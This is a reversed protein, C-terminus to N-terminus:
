RHVGTTSAATSQTNPVLRHQRQEEIQQELQARQSTLATLREQTRPPAQLLAPTSTGPGLGLATRMREMQLVEMSFSGSSQLGSPATAARRKLGGNRNDDSDSYVALVDDGDEVVAAASQNGNNRTSSAHDLYSPHSSSSSSASSSSSSSSSDWSSSSSSSSSSFQSSSSSSSLSESSPKSPSALSYKDALQANYISLAAGGDGLGALRERDMDVTAPDPYEVGNGEEGDAFTDAPNFDVDEKGLETVLDAVEEELVENDFAIRSGVKGEVIAGLIKMKEEILPWLIDDVSNESVIYDIQVPATQGIRHCRDEAQLLAAPTWFLETFIARSAATLTVAVGAATIGLLAARVTPDTQFREISKQREKPPTRGDIRMINVGKFVTKELSDLVHHHHAFVLFKPCTPSALLESIHKRIGPLKATGTNKFLQMLISKRKESLERNSLDKDQDVRSSSSSSPCGNGGVGGGGGGSGGNKEAQGSLHQLAIEMLRSKKKALSAAQGSRTLFERFDDLVQTKLEGEEMEVVFKRRSKPPLSTLIESKLRRIMCNERLMLHLESVNSAGKHGDEGAEGQCYRKTFESYQPWQEPDIVNLQSWLEKPRSLAPTGSLLIARSASKLMPLIAKARKTNQNKLMHCEDAIMVKFGQGANVSQIVDKVRDFLDYSVVLVKLNSDLPQSGGTLVQVEEETVHCTGDEDKLWKAIEIQWHYRASSPAIILLPWEAIFSYAIGIAQITKGLGPEDAILCRGKKKIAGWHVGLKQFDALSEMLKAPLVANLSEVIAADLKAASADGGMTMAQLVKEPISICNVRAIRLHNEFVRYVQVHMGLRYRNATDNPLIWFWNRADKYHKLFKNVVEITEKSPRGPGTWKAEILDKRHFSFTFEQGYSYSQFALQLQARHAESQRARKQAEHLALANARKQPGPVVQQVEVDDGSDNDHSSLDVYGNGPRNNGEM